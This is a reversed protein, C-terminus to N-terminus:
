ELTRKMERMAGLSLLTPHEYKEIEKIDAIPELVSGESIIHIRRADFGFKLLDQKTSESITIVDTNSRGLVFTAIPELIYYGVM